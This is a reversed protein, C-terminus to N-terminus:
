LRGGEGGVCVSAIRVIIDTDNHIKARDVPIAVINQLLLLTCHFLYINGTVRIPATPIPITHTHTRTYTHAQTGARTGAHRQAHTHTHLQYRKILAISSVSHILVIARCTTLCETLGKKLWEEVHNKQEGQYLRDSQSPLLFGIM